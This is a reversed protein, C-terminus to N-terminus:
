PKAGSSPRGPLLFLSGGSTAIAPAIESPDEDPSSPQAPAAASGNRLFAIVRRVKQAILVEAHEDFEVLHAELTGAIAALAPVGFPRRGLRFDATVRVSLGLEALRLLGSLRHIPDPESRVERWARLSKVLADRVHRTDGTRSFDNLEQYRVGALTVELRRLSDTPGLLEFSRAVYERCRGSGQYFARRAYGLLLDVRLGAAETGRRLYWKALELAVQAVEPDVGISAHARAIELRARLDAGLRCAPDDASLSKVVIQPLDLLREFDCPAPREDILVDAEEILLRAFGWTRERVVRVSELHGSTLVPWSELSRVRRLARELPSTGDSPDSFPIRRCLVNSEHAAPRIRFDKLAFRFFSSEDLAQWCKECGAALHVALRLQEEFGLLVEGALYAAIESPGIHPRETM